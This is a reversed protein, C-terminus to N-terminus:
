ANHRHRGPHEGVIMASAMRVGTAPDKSLERFARLSGETWAMTKAVPESFVPSWGAEALCVASTLGSVGAGIVVVQEAGDAM